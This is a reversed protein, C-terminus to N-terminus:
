YFYHNLYSPTKELKTIKIPNSTIINNNEDVLKLKYSSVATLKQLYEDIYLITKCKLGCLRKSIKYKIHNKHLVNIIKSNIKKDLTYNYIPTYPPGHANSNNANTDPNNNIKLYKIIHKEIALLTAIDKFTLNDNISYNIKYTKTNYMPTNYISHM